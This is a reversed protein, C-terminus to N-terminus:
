IPRGLALGDVGASRPMPPPVLSRMSTPSDIFVADSTDWVSSKQRDRQQSSIDPIHLAPVVPRSSAAGLTSSTRSRGASPSSRSSLSRELGKTEPPSMSSDGQTQMPSLMPSGDRKPTSLSMRHSAGMRQGMGAFGGKSPRESASSWMSGSPSRPEPTTLHFQPPPPTSPDPPTGVSRGVEDSFVTMFSGKNALTRFYSPTSPGGTNSLQSNNRRSRREENAERIALAFERSLTTSFAYDLASFAENNRSSAPAGYELLVKICGLNNWASASPVALAQNAGHITALLSLTM